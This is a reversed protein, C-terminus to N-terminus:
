ILFELGLMEKTERIGKDNKLTYVEVLLAM